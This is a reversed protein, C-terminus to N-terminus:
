LDVRDEGAPSTDHTPRRTSTFRSGTTPVSIRLIRGTTMTEFSEQLRYPVRTSSAQVDGTPWGDPLPDETADPAFDFVLFPDFTTGFERSNEIDEPANNWLFFEDWAEYFETGSEQAAYSFLAPVLAGEVSRLRVRLRDEDDQIRLCCHKFKRGSGCPVSRQSRGDGNNPTRPHSSPVRTKRSNTYANIHYGSSVLLM